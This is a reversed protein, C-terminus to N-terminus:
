SVYIGDFRTEEIRQVGSVHAVVIHSIFYIKKSPSGSKQRHHLLFVFVLKLIMTFTVSEDSSLTQLNSHRLNLEVLWASYKWSPMSRLPFADWHFLRLSPLDHSDSIVELTSERDDDLHKYVKLFKLRRMRSVESTTLSLPNTMECTHLSM